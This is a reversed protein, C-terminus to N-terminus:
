ISTGMTIPDGTVQSMWGVAHYGGGSAEVAVFNLILQLWYDIFQIFEGDKQDM